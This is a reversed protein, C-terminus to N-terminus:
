DDDQSLFEEEDYNDHRPDDLDDDGHFLIRSVKRPALQVEEEHQRKLVESPRPTVDDQAPSTTPVDRAFAFPLTVDQFQTVQLIDMASMGLDQPSIKVFKGASMRRLLLDTDRSTTGKILLGRYRYKGDVEHLACAYYVKRLATIFTGGVTRSFLHPFHGEWTIGEPGELNHVRQIGPFENKSPAPVGSNLVIHTYPGHITDPIYYRLFHAHVEFGLDSFSRQLSPIPILAADLNLFEM